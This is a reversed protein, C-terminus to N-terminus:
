SVYWQSTPHNGGGYGGYLTLKGSIVTSGGNGGPASSPAVAYSSAGTGGLGVTISLVESPTVTIRTRVASMGGGGGLGHSANGGGGAGCGSVYACNAWTPVTVTYNGPSAYFYPKGLYALVALQSPVRTDSADTFLEDSSVVWEKETKNLSVTM